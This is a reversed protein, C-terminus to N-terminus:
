TARVRDLRLRDLEDFVARLTLLVAILTGLGVAGSILFMVLVQYRAAVEPPAGGLIQGTMMGPITVLGVVTMSNLIPIMGTKVAEAVVERAAEWRTAGFALLCEVKARGSTFGKLASDMGLSVGTLANGLVMGLLPIFYRPAWFPEVGILLATAFITTPVAGVTMAVLGAGWAGRYTHKSRQVAARGALVVMLGGLGFVLAPHAIAFVPVLVYGLLLLQVVTRVSAVLLKKELGLKLWVSLAGNIAILASAGALDLLSLDIPGTM